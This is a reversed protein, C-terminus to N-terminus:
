DTTHKEKRRDYLGNEKRRKLPTVRIWYRDVFLAKQIRDLEANAPPPNEGKRNENYQEGNRSNGARKPYACLIACHGVGLIASLSLLELIVITVSIM